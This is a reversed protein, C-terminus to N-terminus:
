KRKIAKNRREKEKKKRKNIEDRHKNSPQSSSMPCKLWCIKREEKREMTWKRKGLERCKICLTEVINNEVKIIASYFSHGDM